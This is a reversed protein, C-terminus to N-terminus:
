LHLIEWELICAAFLSVITRRWRGLSCLRVSARVGSSGSYLVGSGLSHRRRLAHARLQEAAAGEHATGAALGAYPGVVGLPSGRVVQASWPREPSQRPLGM